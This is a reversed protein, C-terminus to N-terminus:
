HFSLRILSCSDGTMARNSLLSASPGDGLMWGGADVTWPDLGDGFRAERLSLFARLYVNGLIPVMPVLAWCWLCVFSSSHTKVSSSLCRWRLEGPPAEQLLRCRLQSSLTSLIAPTFAPKHLFPSLAWDLQTRPPRVM